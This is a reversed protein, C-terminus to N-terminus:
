ESSRARSTAAADVWVALLIMAGVAVNDWFTSVHTLVLANSIIGLFLAGLVTGVVSGRGGMIHTGGIVAAAIVKLEFGKGTNSQVAGFYGAHLFGALGMLLGSAAFALPVVRRDYIGLFGASARDGGFAFLQRGSVVHKLLLHVAVAAALAAIILLPVGNEGGVTGRGFETLNDSAYVWKGGTIKIMLAHFILLTALTIVISHVRGVVTLFGNAAGLTMGVLLAGGASLLLPLGSSDIRAAAVAALALIMGVSIDIGGAIIVLMVGLAGITLISQSVLIDQLNQATRFAPVTALLVAVMLGLFVALGAERRSVLWQLLRRYGGEPNTQAGATQANRKKSESDPLAHRLLEDETVQAADLEAILRGERMVGVRHSLALLEPIESTVLLVSKGSKALATIIRHIEGKAGVDVGQTPEELILVEPNTQLWRGLLVKQQNGGSLQLANQDPGLTKVRLDRINELNAEREASRQIWGARTKEGLSSISMNEGVSMQHFMGQSLRDAPVYGIGAEVRNGPPGSLARGALSVKGAATPRLGFIAKCLESQGAGVLGYVGYVEGEHVTLTVSEFAGARDTLDSVVLQPSKGPVCDPDREFTVSRGVMARILDEHDTEATRKQWVLRGDRFVTVDQTLAFIEDLRHSVFLVAGGGSVYERVRQFLLETEAFPLVATPEDLILLRPRAALGFALEVMQKEVGSLTRADRDVTVSPVLLALAEAAQRRISGWAVTQVATKPYGERLAFNEGVTLDPILHTHQHVVAIGARRSAQPSPLALQKGHLCIAGADPRIVGALVKILTSKGAGNEGVLAHVTGSRITLSVGDLAVVGPYRKTLGTIELLASDPM